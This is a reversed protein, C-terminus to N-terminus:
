AAAFIGHGTCYYFYRTARDADPFKAVIKDRTFSNMKTAVAVYESLFGRKVSSTDGIKYTANDDRPRGRNTPAAAKKVAVKKGAAKKVAVKKGAAKKAAAKKPIPADAGNEESMESEEDPQELQTTSGEGRLIRELHERAQPTVSQVEPRRLFFGAAKKLDYNLPKFETDFERNPLRKVSVSSTEMHILHTWKHGRLVRVATSRNHNAFIGYDSM